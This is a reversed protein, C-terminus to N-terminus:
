AARRRRRLLGVGLLSSGVLAVVVLSSPEPVIFYEPAAVIEVPSNVNTIIPQGTNTNLDLSDFYTLQLTPPLGHPGTYTSILSFTGLLLPPSKSSDTIPQSGVDFTFPVTATEVTQGELQTTRYSIAQQSWIWGQALPISALAPTAVIDPKVNQPWYLGIVNEVTFTFSDTYAPKQAIKLYSAALTSGPDLYVSFEWEINPDGIIQTGKPKLTIGAEATVPVILLMAFSAILLPFRDVNIRPRM